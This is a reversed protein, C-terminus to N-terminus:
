VQMSQFRLQLEQMTDADDDSKKVIPIQIVEELRPPLLGSKVGLKIIAQTAALISLQDYKLRVFIDLEGIYVCLFSQCVDLWISSQSIGKKSASNSGCNSENIQFLSYSQINPNAKNIATLYPRMDKLLKIISAKGSLIISKLEKELSDDSSKEM